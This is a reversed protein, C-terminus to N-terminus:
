GHFHMGIILYIILAETILLFKQSVNASRRQTEVTETLIDISSGTLECGLWVNQGKSCFFGIALSLQEEPVVVKLRREDGGMVVKTVEAHKLANM